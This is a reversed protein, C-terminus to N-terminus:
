LALQGGGSSIIVLSMAVFLLDYHWGSNKEGWFGIHWVFIKRYIAGLMILILSAAAVPVMFGLAVAAGAALEIVALLHTLGPSLGLGLSRAKSNTIHRFGSTAFIFGVLLRLLLLSADNFLSVQQHM